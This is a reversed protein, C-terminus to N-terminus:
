EPSTPSTTASAKGQVPDVALLATGPEGGLEARRGIGAGLGIGGDAETLEKGLPLGGRRYLGVRLKSRAEGLRDLDDVATADGRRSGESESAGRGLHRLGHGRATVPRRIRRSPQGM